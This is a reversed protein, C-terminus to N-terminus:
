YTQTYSKVCTKMMLTGFRQELMGIYEKKIYLKTGSYLPIANGPHESDDKYSSSWKKMIFIIDNEQNVAIYRRHLFDFETRVNFLKSVSMGPLLYDEDELERDLTSIFNILAESNDSIMYTEGEEVATALCQQFPNQHEEDDKGVIGQYAFVLSVQQYDIRKRTESCGVLIYEDENNKLFPECSNNKDYLHNQPQMERCKFLRYMGQYDPMLRLLNQSILEPKRDFFAKEIIAHLAYQIVYSKYVTNTEPIKSLGGVFNQIKDNLRRSAHLKEYLEIYNIGCTNVVQMIPDRYISNRAYEDTRERTEEKGLDYLKEALYFEIDEQEMYDPAHKDSCRLLFSKYITFESFVVDLLLNGTPYVANIANIMRETNLDKLRHGYCRVLDAIAIQTVLNYQEYHELCFVISETFESYNEEEAANALYAYVALFSEKGGDIFRMLLCNRLGLLEDTEELVNDIPYQDLNPFRLKMIDFASRWIMIINDKDFRFEFLADLLGKTIRGSRSIIVEPLERYFTDRSVESSLRISNLFEGKEILSSGWEYSYLYMLMHVESREKDDLKLQEIIQLVSDKRKQSYNWGGTKTIIFRLMELLTDRDNQYNKLFGCIDQIDREMLDHTEFWKKADELTLADFRPQGDAFADVTKKRKKNDTDDTKKIHFYEIYQSVDFGASEVTLLFEKISGDKWSDSDLWPSDLINFRSVVNIVLENMRCKILLREDGSTGTCTQDLMKLVSTAADIIRPSTENPLSEILGIVIDLYRSDNCYKEIASRLMREVVWSKGQKIQLRSLFALAYRPDTELLKDFWNNLFHKTERGDTHNWLAITMKTITDREEESNGAVSEFFINYSDMIQELIIDKHFGYAVLYRTCMEFYKLAESPNYKSILSVFRLKAAAICDYVENKEIRGQTKLLYHKVIEYNDVTLFRAMLRLFEADTLPGGRSHDFSTGTEDDLRELIGLAKELDQLTGNQVILEVAQEYSRTLENQLFYLDCTRPTGKFVETDQLLLELNTIAVECISKPDMQATHACLEAMKVSYIIWNYFWNINESEAIILEIAKRNEQEALYYVQSFLEKFIRIDEKGPMELKKIKKWNGIAAEVSVGSQPYYGTKIYSLYNKWHTLQREEAISAIEDFEIYDKLEDYAIEICQNRISVKEKEIAEMLKPIISSGQEDLHYRLYYKFDEIKYQKANTDLYLEWWPTIGAKSSIYCALRGTNKDFTPEGDIQMLQNLKSAGKIDCIAQFYEEGTSEFENMDDLMALLEGATVLAVLNRTRGASRIICNLNMKIRKRSYGEEVAKLVFEKEILAINEDDRKIKYLLKSLYYFSKDFEFFPKEQLWDALIGYVNREIDVKKNKLSSLVFRRFSEHYISFGGSIVNEILLPHLMSIDQEVFEGDGTIEMLDDLSLYFDAGCLANVTRNNHVKKYLYSYYESLSIDYDPIGDILEKNVNSNRLQRLIYSLYLANGQSKKILYESISSDDDDKITDDTIQFTAMLSKAQKIGWPEIKFVYYSNDKFKDLVDIPQSAIIVYCNDPFHIELLESIIETESRSILDKYLDYERSIHDLGDVVLYFEEGILRLLNELEAKDAGFTTNKHEVLEPCQEVIQSVLNGYLSTVRIRELSNTDQLSQFCNYHIVKSDDNKLKDIYEDVLWSKGSGPNGTIIVRKSDRITGHLREVEDALIVKHASDVPFRQDFKGYDMILGLRGMLTNTYLRNGMARSHKVETALKYIVEELNLNDNPYIGVGLKEVQRIIVNEIGGPNKLNLSAKPMELIITLENCFSLFDERDIHGAKIATNFKRWTKPPLQGKPWFLNGDFVFAVTPFPLTQEQIPKLFEVIPDDDTPRNWALCLKIQTDNESEKRTKWSAFLDCLATDHGNGNAFDDKTLKHSSEDDSYKIQFETTSNPTKVKLDDFKDGSFDKRDIIIEADAQRLMLQLIISVTFYDQYEYGEHISSQM